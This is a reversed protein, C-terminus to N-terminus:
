GRLSYNPSNVAKVGPQPARLSVQGTVPKGPRFTRTDILLAYPAPSPQPLVEAHRPLMDECAGSPAGGPYGEILCLAQLVISVPFWLEMLKQPVPLLRMALSLIWITTLLLQLDTLVRESSAHSPGTTALLTALDVSATNSPEYAACDM